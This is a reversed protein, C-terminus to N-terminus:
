GLEQGGMRTSDPSNVRKKWARLNRSAGLNFKEYNQGVERM